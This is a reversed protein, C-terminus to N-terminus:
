LLILGRSRMILLVLVLGRPFLRNLLAPLVPDTTYPEEDSFPTQYYALTSLSPKESFAQNTVHKNFDKRSGCPVRQYLTVSGFTPM